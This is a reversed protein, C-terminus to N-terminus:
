ASLTKRGTLLDALEAVHVDLADIVPYGPDQGNFALNLDTGALVIAEAGQDEVMRRGADLFVRRQAPTCVGAVAMDQYLQGLEETEDDLAVAETRELQGYLRTRMVVRTGLLGIRKLGREQFYADLPAVASILPLPSLAATEDYCFHGGLSTIAVADCGARALRDIHRAYVQAQEARKDALNNRILTQVDAHDITLDCAGGVANTLRQYYVVTAAVGIGGILGLHM